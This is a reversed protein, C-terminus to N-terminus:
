RKLLILVGAAIALAALVTKSSSFGFSLLSLLASIILWIALLTMGVKAPWSRWVVLIVVGVAVALIDVVTGVMAGGVALLSLLGSVILWIGLLLSALDKSLKM